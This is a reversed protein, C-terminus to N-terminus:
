HGHVRQGFSFWWERLPVNIFVSRLVDWPCVMPPAENLKEDVDGHKLTKSPNATSQPDAPPNLCSRRILLLFNQRRHSKILPQVPLQRQAKSKPILRAPRNRPRYKPAFGTM